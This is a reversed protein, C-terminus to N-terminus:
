WPLGTGAKINKHSRRAKRWTTRPKKLSELWHGIAFITLAFRAFYVGIFRMTKRSPRSYEFYYKVLVPYPSLKLKHVQDGLMVLCLLLPLAVSPESWCWCSAAMWCFWSQGAELCVTRSRMKL